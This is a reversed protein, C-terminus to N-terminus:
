NNSLLVATEYSGKRDRIALLATIILAVIEIIQVPLIFKLNDRLFDNLFIPYTLFGMFLIIAILNSSFFVSSIKKLRFKFMYNIVVKSEYFCLQEGSLTNIKDEISRIYGALCAIGGQLNLNHFLFLFAVQGLIYLIVNSNLLGININSLKIGLFAGIVTFFYYYMSNISKLYLFLEKRAIEKESILIRIKEKNSLKDNTKIM